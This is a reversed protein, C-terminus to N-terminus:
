LVSLVHVLYHWTRLLYNATCKAAAAPLLDPRSSLSSLTKSNENESHTQEKLEGSEAARVYRFHLQVYM